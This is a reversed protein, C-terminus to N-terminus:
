QCWLGAKIEFSCASDVDQNACRVVLNRPTGSFTRTQPNFQLWAPLPVGPSTYASLSLTRDDIDQFLGNPVVYVLPADQLGTTAPFPPISFPPDNVPLVTQKIEGPAM